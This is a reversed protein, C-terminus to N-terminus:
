TSRAPAEYHVDDVWVHLFNPDARVSLGPRHEEKIVGRVPGPAGIARIMRIVGDEFRLHIGNLCEACQYYIASLVPFYFESEELAEFYFEPEDLAEFDDGELEDLAEIADFGQRCKPQGRGRSLNSTFFLDGRPYYDPFCWSELSCSLVIRCVGM